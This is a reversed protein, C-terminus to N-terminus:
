DMEAAIVHIAGPPISVTWTQGRALDLREYVYVPLDVHLGITDEVSEQRARSKLFVTCNLGDSMEGVIQVQLRNDRPQPPRDKRQFLVREQRVCLIVRAGIEFPYRPTVFVQDAVRVALTESTRDVVQGALINKVGVARAVFLDAPRMLIENPSGVQHVRGRDIVAIHDGVFSAESLDHTVFLIPREFQRQVDRVLQRLQARIPTDLAAFPEDLLLVHPQRVLARALAVRQQQGGSLESPRREAVHRLGMSALMHEVAQATKQRSGSDLGFGVNKAVTLHPFLTYDQPVYGVRRQQPPLDVGTRSDFLVRDDVVIRGEDPRVLGAVCGLILSKGAGSPGFLVTIGQLAEIQVEIAFEALQLTVDIELM